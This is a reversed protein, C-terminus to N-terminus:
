PPDERSAPVYPAHDEDDSCGTSVKPAIKARIFLSLSRELGRAQTRVHIGRTALNPGEMACKLAPDRWALVSPAHDM